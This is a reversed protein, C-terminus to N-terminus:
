TEQPSRTRLVVIQSMAAVAYVGILAPIAAEAGPWSVGAGESAWFTGFACLLVGVVFKAANEPVRALPVQLVAAAAAVAFLALVAALSATGMAHETAGVTVAIFVV